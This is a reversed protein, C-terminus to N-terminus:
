GTQDSARDTEEALQAARRRAALSAGALDDSEAKATRGGGPREVTKLRVGGTGESMARPLVRRSELRWRLGITATEVFCRAIVDELAEPRVLVRVEQAPRGKKGMRAGSSVDLVGAHARLRDCATAIEEGTMDDIDFTIVGVSDAAGAHVEQEFLLARLVNPLGPLDRTGAGTGTALLRGAAIRAPESGCLHRLAAAGTPTVREGTVGDDRWRFGALLAATAPAPVPLLGHQTKVLGGGRPLDSVSWTAPGLAAALSGVAVVDALSDWDAIEHFHVEEVAVGHLAAETEAILRLIALAHGATGPSLDAREIRERMDSYSGAPGGHAGAPAPEGDLRFRRARLGGSFGEVLRPLGAEAPLVRSLDREVRDLLDPRADLLAAVLM